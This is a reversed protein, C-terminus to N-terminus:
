FTVLPYKPDRNQTYHFLPFHDPFTYQFVIVPQHEVGLWNSMQEDNLLSFPWIKRMQEDRNACGLYFFCGVPTFQDSRLHYPGVKYKPDRNQTYHFLPFHINFFVHEFCGYEDDSWSAQSFCFNFDYEGRLLRSSMRLELTTAEGSYIYIYIM